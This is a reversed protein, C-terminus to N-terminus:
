KSLHTTKRHTLDAQCHATVSTNRWIRAIVVVIGETMSKKKAMQLRAFFKLFVSRAVTVGLLSSRREIVPTACRGDRDYIYNTVTEPRLMDFCAFCIGLRMQNRNMTAEFM